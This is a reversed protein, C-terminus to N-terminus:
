AITLSRNSAKRLGGDVASRLSQLPLSSQMAASPVHLNAVCRESRDKEGAAPEGVVNIRLAGNVM